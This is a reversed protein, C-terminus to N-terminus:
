KCEYDKLSYIKELINNSFESLKEKDAAIDKTITIPEGYIIKVHAFLPVNKTIYVPVIPVCAKYAIYLPGVKANGKKSTKGIRTGEPFILLKVKEQNKFLNISHLLSRVDKKGRHIPFVGFYNFIKAIIKNKFLEAKAMIYLNNTKAYIWTPEFINSHNACIICRSCNEEQEKNIYEVRYLFKCLLINILGKVFKIM